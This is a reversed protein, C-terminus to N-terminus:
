RSICYVQDERLILVTEAGETIETAFNKNFMITDGVKIELPVVTGDTAVRGSGVALVKGKVIKAEVNAPRFLMGVKEDEAQKTVVVFDRLPQITM